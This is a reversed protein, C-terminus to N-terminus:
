RLKLTPITKIDHFKKSFAEKLFSIADRTLEQCTKKKYNASFYQISPM